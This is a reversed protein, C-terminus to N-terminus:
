RETIKIKQNKFVIDPTHVLYQIDFHNDVIIGNEDLIIMQPIAKIGYIMFAENNWGNLDSFNIWSMSDKKIANVWDDINNDGSISIINLGKSHYLNYMDRMDQHKARCPPCNSAWFEIITYKGLNQSISETKGDPTKMTCDIFKDGIGPIEPLSFFKKIILGKDTLQFKEPLASYIEEIDDKSLVSNNDSIEYELNSLAVDSQINEFYLKKKAEVHHRTVQAIEKLISDKVSSGTAIRESLRMDQLRNEFKQVLTEFKEHIVNSASGDVKANVFYEYNGSLHIKANELWLIKRYKPYKPNDETIMIRKPSDFKYTLEFKNDFVSIRTLTKGEDLDIINLITSDPINELSATLKGKRLQCQTSILLLFILNSLLLFKKM